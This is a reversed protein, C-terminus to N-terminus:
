HDEQGQLKDMQDPQGALLTPSILVQDEQDQQHHKGPQHHCLPAKLQWIVMGGVKNDDVEEDESDSVDLAYQETEEEEEEKDCKIIKGEKGFYMKEMWVVDRTVIIRKTKENYMRYADGAHNDPYGVFMMLIGKDKLKGNFKGTLKVVGAWGWPVMKHTFRPRELGWHEFRPKKENKYEVVTLDDLKTATMLAEKAFLYRRNEPINAAILMARGRNIITEFGKEVRSNQQPTNRATYEFKINGMKWDSSSLRKEVAQNEGANDCRIRQVPKGQIKWKNILECIPEVIDSKNEFFMSIKRGTARDHIMLWNPKRLMPDKSMKDKPVGIKALDFSIMENIEKPKEEYEYITVKKDKKVFNKQRAKALACAECPKMSKRAVDINIHKAIERCTSEGMHGLDQHLRNISVVKTWKNNEEFNLAAVETEELPRIRACFLVGNATIIKINFRM